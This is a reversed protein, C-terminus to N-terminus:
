LTEEEPPSVGLFIAPNTRPRKVKHEFLRSNAVLENVFSRAKNIGLKFRGNAQNLLEAKAILSDEPVLEFVDEVTVTVKKSEAERIEQDTAPHWFIVNKDWSVYRELQPRGQDDVWELRRGRKGAILRFTGFRDTPDLILIARMANTIDAGGAGAYQWESGAKWKDSQRNIIKPPHHVIMAGANRQDLIPMLTNRLWPGTVAPNCIDGGVYAQMPNIVVLDAQDRELIRDALNLFDAGSTKTHHYYQCKAIVLSAEEDTFGLRSRADRIIEHLDGDDDECGFIAIKLPRAPRIGLFSRGVAWHISGQLILSSKGQGSPGVLLAMGKRCLYALVFIFGTTFRMSRPPRQTLDTYAIPTNMASKLRTFNMWIGPSLGTTELTTNM